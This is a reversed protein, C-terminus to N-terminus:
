ALSTSYAASICLWVEATLQLSIEAPTMVFDGRPMIIGHQHSLLHVLQQRTYGGALM